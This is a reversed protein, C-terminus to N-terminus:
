GGQDEGPEFDVFDNIAARFWDSFSSYNRSFRRGSDGRFEMNFVTVGHPNKRDFCAVDDCDLKRAFPVLGEEPYFVSLTGRLALVNEHDLIQWPHFDTLHSELVRRFFAPYSLWTPVEGPPLLYKTQDAPRAM